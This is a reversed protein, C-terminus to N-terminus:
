NLQYQATSMTLHLLGRVKSDLTRANMTFAVRRGREDRELYDILAVRQEATADGDVFLELVYDVLEAATAYQRGGLPTAPDFTTPDKASGRATILRNTFNFRELLSSTSIWGRGSPWGGVNPPNFLEQGMKALGFVTERTPVPVGLLRMTGAVLEAPSKVKARYAAASHFEPALFIARLTARIDFNTAMLLDAFPRVTADTPQDWVFYAFLRRAIFTACAPQRVIIRLIDDGNWNGTEGLFTKSGGDHQQPTFAFTGGVLKNMNDREGKVFWGTFARAAAKVDDETYTGIGMTFLELLERGFNENPAARRNANGDLWILMAPDQSVSLLLEGFSGLGHALFLQYQRWMLQPSNVKRNATAFLGHWFLALKEQLPRKTNAMRFLWLRQLDVLKSPDANLSAGRVDLDDPLSLPNLLRDVAGSYGLAVYEDLENASAGFGARRLLHRTRARDDDLVM